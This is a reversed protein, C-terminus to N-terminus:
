IMLVKKKDLESNIEIMKTNKHNFEGKIKELEDIKKKKKPM